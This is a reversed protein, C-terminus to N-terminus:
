KGLRLSNLMGTSAGTLQAWGEADAPDGDVLVILLLHSTEGTGITALYLQVPEGTGTGFNELGDSVLFYSYCAAPCTPDEKPASDSLDLSLRQAQIEDDITRTSVDSIVLNPNSQLWALLSAPTDAVGAVEHDSDYATPDLWLYMAATPHDALRLALEVDTDKVSIPPDSPLTFVTGPLFAQTVFTTPGPSPSSAGDSGAPPLSASPTVSAACATLLLASLPVLGRRIM